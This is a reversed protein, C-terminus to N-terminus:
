KKPQALEFSNIFFAYEQPDIDSSKAATLVYIENGTSFAMGKIKMDNNEISFDVAKMKHFDSPTMNKLKNSGNASVMDNVVEKLLVEGQASPADPLTIITILYSTGDEKESIFTTLHRKKQGSPDKVGQSASQPFAPLFVRFKEDPSTYFHWNTVNTEGSANQSSAVEVPTSKSHDKLSLLGFFILLLAAVALVSLILRSM